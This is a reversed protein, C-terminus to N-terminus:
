AIPEGIPYPTAVKTCYRQIFTADVITLAGDGDIDAQMLQEESYPVQVMTAARQVVTADVSDVEGDGNADGLIPAPEDSLPIFAFGNDNAYREAESGEVGKITFNEIKVIEVDTLSEWPKTERYGLSEEAILIITNPITISTLSDCGFFTNKRIMTLSKGIIVNQLNGCDAFAAGGLSTVTDPIIISSIGSGKFASGGIDTVSNGMTVDSLLYCDEFAYKGISTVTDPIIVSELEPREYFARDSISVTGDKIVVNKPCMNKVKYLVKGAYVIGDPQNEYWDTYSFADFGVITLAEPFEINSLKVCDFFAADGIEAISASLKISALNNCKEFAFMGIERVTNPLIVSTLTQCSAFAGSGIAVVDHGEIISPVSIENDSGNYKDIVATNDDRLYYEYDGYTLGTATEDADAAFVTITLTSLLLVAAIILSLTKKM